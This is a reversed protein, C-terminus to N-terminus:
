EKRCRFKCAENLRFTQVRLLSTVHEPFRGLCLKKKKVHCSIAKPFFLCKSTMYQNPLEIDFYNSNIKPYHRLPYTRFHVTISNIKQYM